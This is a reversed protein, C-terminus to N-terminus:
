TIWNARRGSSPILCDRRRPFAKHSLQLPLVPSYQVPPSFQIFRRRAIARDFKLSMM